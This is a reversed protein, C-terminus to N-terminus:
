HLLSQEVHPFHFTVVKLDMQSSRCKRQEGICVCSRISKYLFYSCDPSFTLFTNSGREVKEHLDLEFSMTLSPLEFVSVTKDDRCALQKNNPSLAVGNYKSTAVANAIFKCSSSTKNTVEEFWIRNTKNLIDRAPNKCSLTNQVFEFHRNSLDHLYRECTVVIRDDHGIFHISYLQILRWYLDAPLKSKYERLIYYFFNFDLYDDGCYQHSLFNVGVHVM